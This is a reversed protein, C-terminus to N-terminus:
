QQDTERRNRPGILWMLDDFPTNTYIFKGSVMDIRCGTGYETVSEVNDANILVRTGTTTELEFM